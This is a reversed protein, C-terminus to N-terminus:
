DRKKRAKNAAYGAAGLGGAAALGGGVMTGTAMRGAREMAKQQKAGGLRMVNKPLFKKTLKHHATGPAAKMAEGAGKLKKMLKSAGKGKKAEKHMAIKEVVEELQARTEAYGAGYFGGLEYEVLDDPTVGAIKALDGELVDAFAQEAGEFYAAAKEAEYEDETESTAELDTEEVGAEDMAEQIAAEIEEDSAGEARAEEIFNNMVGVADEDGSAIKTFFDRDIDLDQAVTEATNDAALKEAEVGAMVDNYLKAIESM